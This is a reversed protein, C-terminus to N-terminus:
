NSEDREMKRFLEFASKLIFFDTDIKGENARKDLEKKLKKTANKKIM